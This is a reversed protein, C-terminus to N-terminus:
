IWGTGSFYLNLFLLITRGFGGTLNVPVEDFRERPKDADTLGEFVKIVGNRLCHLGCVRGLWINAPLCDDDVFGVM